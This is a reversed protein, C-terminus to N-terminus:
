KGKRERERELQTLIRVMRVMEDTRKELSNGLLDTVLLKRHRTLQLLRGIEREFCCFPFFTSACALTKIKKM